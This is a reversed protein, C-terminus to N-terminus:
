TASNRRLNELLKRCAAELTAARKSFTFRIKKRGLDSESSFFSSGPVGAVGVKTVLYNAFTTDDTRDDIESFDSWIYYAGQPKACKFGLSKLSSLLMNRKASYDQRLEEYYKDPLSLARACAIQLPHPAGVTLFDHVKKIANTMEDSAITYGVRWGTVSFTKSFGSITVTRDRMSELSGISIHEAGDYTIYEYIEDTFCVADYDNCLDSILRLEDRTFVKGSPNMPTNIVIGRTMSTFVSKLREEDITFGQKDDVPQTLDVYRPSAGSIIADPAYNEYHPSFVILEDGPDLLAIQSAVMAETTGCTVVINREPDAQIRNYQLAKNAIARRLEPAGWTVSYQNYDDFVAKSAAEKLESPCPFDPFGQALNIAGHIASLRTM